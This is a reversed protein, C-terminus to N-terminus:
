VEYVVIFTAGNSVTIYGDNITITRNDVLWKDVTYGLPSAITYSSQGQQNVPNRFDRNHLLNRHDGHLALNTKHSM